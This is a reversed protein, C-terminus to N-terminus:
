CLPPSGCKGHPKAFAYVQKCTMPLGVTDAYCM